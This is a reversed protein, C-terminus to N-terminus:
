TDARQGEQQALLDRIETLLAQDVTLPDAEEEVPGKRLRQLREFVKIAVFVSFGIILFNLLDTLFAGYRVTGDCVQAQTAGVKHCAGLHFTMDNFNPKGFIWGIVPTFLNNVISQVVSNFAAGIVVAVALDIANGRTIFKRFDTWFNKM